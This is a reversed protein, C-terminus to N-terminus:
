RVNCIRTVLLKVSLWMWVAAQQWKGMEKNQKNNAQTTHQEKDVKDQKWAAQSAEAHEM